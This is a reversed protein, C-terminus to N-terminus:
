TIDQQNRKNWSVGKFGSSNDKRTKANWQTQSRTAKRLNEIRNDGRSGNIHDVETDDDLVEGYAWAWVLRHEKWNVGDLSVDKYGNPRLRGGREKSARRFLGGAQPDYSFVERVRKILYAQELPCQISKPKVYQNKTSLITPSVPSSGTVGAIHVRTAGSKQTSEPTEGPFNNGMQHMKTASSNQNM